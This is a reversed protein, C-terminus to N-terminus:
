SAPNWAVEGAKRSRLRAEAVDAAQRMRLLESELATAGADTIEYYRRLRGAVVEERDVRVLEDETLRDLAGYLTGISLKLRGDSLKHVEELLGYGHLARGALASLIM